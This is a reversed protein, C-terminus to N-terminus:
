IIDGNGAHFDEAAIATLPYVTSSGDIAVKGELGGGCGTLVAVAGIILAARIM